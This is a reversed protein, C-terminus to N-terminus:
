AKMIKRRLGAMGILGTGLLLMTTPEPVPSGTTEVYDNGCEMTWKAKVDQTFTDFESFADVSVWGELINSDLNLGYDDTSDYFDAGYSYTASSVETGGILRWPGSSPFSSPNTWTGTAASYVAFDTQWFRLAYDWSGDAGFDLVMDGPQKNGSTAPGSGDDPDIVIGTQLAFYLRDDTVTLGLFEADYAQGGVGPGDANPGDITDEKFFSAYEGAGIIGDSVPLASANSCIFMVGAIAMLFISIKKM